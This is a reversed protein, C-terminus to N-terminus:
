IMSKGVGASGTLVVIPKEHFYQWAIQQNKTKPQFNLHYRKEEEFIKRKRGRSHSEYYTDDEALEYDMMKLKKIKGM